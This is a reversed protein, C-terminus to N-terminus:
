RCTESSAPGSTAARSASSGYGESCTRSPGHGMGRRASAACTATTGRFCFRTYDLDRVGTCLASGTGYGAQNGWPTAVDLSLESLATVGDYVKTVRDFRVPASM